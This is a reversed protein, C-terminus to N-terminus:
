RQLRQKILRAQRNVYAVILFFALLFAGAEVSLLGYRSKKKEGGTLEYVLGYIFPAPLYGLLNYMLNAVSNALTKLSPPVSNLMIGTLVPLSVGGFFFQCWLLFLFLNFDNVFVLPLGSAGAMITTFVALPFARPDTYGGIKNFLYGGCVVGFIPGTVAAISFYLFTTSQKINLISQLYDTIWFQVGTSIYFVFTIGLLLCM